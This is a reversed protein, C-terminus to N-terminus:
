DVDKAIFVQVPHYALAPDLVLVTRVEGGTLPLSSSTYITTSTSSLATGTPAIVMYLTSSPISVYGSQAGAALSTIVPKAAALDDATTGAVFYVDIAGTAPAQNLIRFDSHGSPAPTTQDDLVTLQYGANYDSILVTQASNAVFTATTSALSTTSTTGTIKVPASRSPAYGGYSTITGQGTNTALLSGEVYVNLAPANYSADIVRALSSTTYGNITQCGALLLSLAASGAIAAAIGPVTLRRRKRVDAHPPRKLDRIM